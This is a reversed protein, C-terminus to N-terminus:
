KTPSEENAAKAAKRRTPKAKVRRLVQATRAPLYMRLWGKGTPKYLKDETTFHHISSDINGRGGFEPADTDLIIEYEGIFSQCLLSEVCQELYKEVNYVPVLISFKVTKVGRFSKEM